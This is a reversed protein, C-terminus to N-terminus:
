RMDAERTCGSQPVIISSEVPSYSCVVSGVHVVGLSVKDIPESCQMFSMSYFMPCVTPEPTPSVVDCM